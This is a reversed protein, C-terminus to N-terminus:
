LKTRWHDELNVAPANAEFWIRRLTRHWFGACQGLLLCVLVLFGLGVEAAWIMRSIPANAVFISAGAMGMLVVAYVLLVLRYVWIM